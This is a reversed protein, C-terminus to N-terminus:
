GLDVDKDFAVSQRQGDRHCRALRVLGCLDFRKEFADADTSFGAAAAPRQPGNRSVLSVVARWGALRDPPVPRPGDHRVLFALVTRIGGRGPVEVLFQIPAAVDDFAAVAVELLLAADCRAELFERDVEHGHDLERENEGEHFGKQYVCGLRNRIM